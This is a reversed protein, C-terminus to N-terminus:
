GTGMRIDLDLLSDIDEIVDECEIINLEALEEIVEKKHAGNVWYVLPFIKTRKSDKEILRKAVILYYTFSNMKRYFVKDAKKTFDPDIKKIVELFNHFTYDVTEFKFMGTITYELRECCLRLENKMHQDLLKTMDQALVDYSLSFGKFDIFDSERKFRVNFVSKIINEEFSLLGPAVREIEDLTEYYVGYKSKFKTNKRDYVVNFYLPFGSCYVNNYNFLLDHKFVDTDQIDVGDVKSLNDNLYPKITLKKPKKM